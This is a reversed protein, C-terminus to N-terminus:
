VEELVEQVAETDFSREQLALFILAGAFGYGIVSTKINGM